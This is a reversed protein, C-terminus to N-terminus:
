QRPVVSKDTSPASSPLPADLKNRIKGEQNDSSCIKPKGREPGSRLFSDSCYSGLIDVGIIVGSLGDEGQTICGKESTPFSSDSVFCHSVLSPIATLHSFLAQLQVGM